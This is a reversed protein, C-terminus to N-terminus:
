RQDGDGTATVKEVRHSEEPKDTEGGADLLSFGFAEPGDQRPNLRASFQVCEAGHICTYKRVDQKVAGLRM